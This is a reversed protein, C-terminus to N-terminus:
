NLSSSSPSVKVEFLFDAYKRLGLLNEVVPFPQERELYDSSEYGAAVALGKMSVEAVVNMNEAVNGIYLTKEGCHTLTNGGEVFSFYPLIGFGYLEKKLALTDHASVVGLEYGAFRLEMVAHFAFAIPLIPEEGAIYMATFDEGDTGSEADSEIEFHKDIYDSVNSADLKLTPDYEPPREGVMEHLSTLVEYTRLRDDVLVGSFDFIITGKPPTELHPM